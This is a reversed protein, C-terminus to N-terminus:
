GKAMSSLETMEAARVAADAVRAAYQSLPCDRRACENPITPAPNMARYM